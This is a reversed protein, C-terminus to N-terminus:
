VFYRAPHSRIEHAIQPFTLKKDDNMQFVLEDARVHFGLTDRIGPYFGYPMSDPFCLDRDPMFWTLGLACCCIDTDDLTSPVYTNNLQGASISKILGHYSQPTGTTELLNLWQEQAETYPFDPYSPESTQDSTEDAENTKM